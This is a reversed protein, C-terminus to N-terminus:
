LKKVCDTFCCNDTENRYIQRSLLRTINLNFQKMVVTVKMRILHFTHSFSALLNQEASVKHGWPLTLTLSLLIFHYIDIICTLMASPLYSFIQNLVKRTIDLTKAVYFLHESLCLENCLNRNHEYPHFIFLLLLFLAGEGFVVFFVKVFDDFFHERERERELM